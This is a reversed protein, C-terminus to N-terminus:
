NSPAAHHENKYKSTIKDTWKQMFAESNTMAEICTESYKSSLLSINSYNHEITKQMDELSIQFRALTVKTAMEKSRSEQSSILAFQMAKNSASKYKEAAEKNGSKEFAGFVVSFYAGCEVYETSINDTIEDRIAESTPEAYSSLSYICLASLVILNRM